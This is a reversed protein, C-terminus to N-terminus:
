SIIKPDLVDRLGDGLFNFAMTIITIAIGPILMLRPALQFYTRSDNLMVGWESTPPQAGLGLFSLGSISLIINGIDLTALVIIQSIINPIIHRLIIKISSTGSAKAAMIFDKEKISLVLSRIFRVYKVWWVAALAMMTNALSPGLIGATVIALLISPFAMFIDIIGMICNDINGRYYGSITGLPLSIFLILILVASSSLLSIKAGYIIRSFICRGLHDTGLPYKKNPYCIKQTLDIKEPDNPAIYPAFLGVFLFVLIIVLGLLALKDKILKTLIIISRNKESSM